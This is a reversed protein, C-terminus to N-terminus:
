NPIFFDTENIGYKIIDQLLSNEELTKFSIRGGTEDSIYESNEIKDLDLLIDFSGTGGNIVQGVIIKSSVSTLKDKENFLAANIFHDMTKEFSARSMPDRDLKSLGHRDISTINGTHTMLDILLSLHNYNVGNYSLGLEYLLIQRAAEIGYLKYTTYVDNCQTRQYNIGKIRKIEKFNIGSTIIVYENEKEKNGLKNFLERREENISIENINNIGKLTIKHLVIKLFKTLINYNFDTMNFKIHIINDNNNLIALGNIISIINKETRSINKINSYHNYWYSIFKTKIDLLTIEKDVMKELNLVFRFVFPLASLDTKQNNIYFPNKVNDNKIITDLNNNSNVNYLIEASSIIEGITLHKFSSAIKHTINKDTNIDDNFYIIMQPTKIKKSYSLLENLRSVGMNASGKGSVGAFHKTNLTMQSLPEGCSQAAIIGVMEGPEVLAKMYNFKIENCMKDFEKKNLGYKYICKKPSIYNYLAIKFLYKLNAEDSKLLKNEKNLLVLLRYEYDTLIDNIKEIVYFPDLEYNEKKNSFDQTIRYLNVPLMFHETLVKYNLTAKILIDRLNDRFEKVDKFINKNFKDIDIKKHL